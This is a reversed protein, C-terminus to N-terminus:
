PVLLWLDKQHSGFLISRFTYKKWISLLFSKRNQWLLFTPDTKFNKVFDKFTISQLYTGIEIKVKVRIEIEKIKAPLYLKECFILKKKKHLTLTIRAKMEDTKM